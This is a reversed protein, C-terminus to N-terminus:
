FLRDYGNPPPPPARRVSIRCKDFVWEDLKYNEFSSFDEWESPFSETKMQPIHSFLHTIDHSGWQFSEISRNFLTDFTVPNEKWGRTVASVDETMGAVISLHGPRSETPVHSLSLGYSAKGTDILRHLFPALEKNDMLTDYRLGDASVLFLRKAPPDNSSPRHAPLSEIIPSTYYVDFISYLLILHVIVGLVGIKVEMEISEGHLKSQDPISLIIQSVMNIFHSF